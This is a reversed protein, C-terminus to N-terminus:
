NEPPTQDDVLFVMIDRPGHAPTVLTKEIDATRSPGTLSAIMSPLQEGYKSKLKQLADKLEPVIQSTYALIIHTTPVVFLQRGSGLKSSIIVSGLRAVLAECSTVAVVGEPYDVSNKLYPFEVQDMLKTIKEERCHIMKWGKEQALTVLHELFELETECFVFQGGIKSFSRAFQEELSENTTSYVNKDWDINPFRANTKHILAQRIKKLIKERTTSDQM